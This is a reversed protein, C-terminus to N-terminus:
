IRVRILAPILAIRALVAYTVAQELKANWLMLTDVVRVGDFPLLDSPTTPWYKLHKIGTAKCLKIFDAKALCNHLFGFITSAFTSFSPLPNAAKKKRGKGVRMVEEKQGHM